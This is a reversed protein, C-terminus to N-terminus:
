PCRYSTSGVRYSHSCTLSLDSTAEFEHVEHVQVEVASIELSISELAFIYILGIRYIM